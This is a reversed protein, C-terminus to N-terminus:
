KKFNYKRGDELFIFSFVDIEIKIIKNFKTKFLQSKSM